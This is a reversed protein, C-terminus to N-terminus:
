YYLITFQFNMYLIQSSDIFIVLKKNRKIFEGM